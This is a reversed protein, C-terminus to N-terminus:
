QIAVTKSAEPRGKLPVEIRLLGDCYHAKAADVDVPHCFAASSVYDFDSRPALLQLHRSNMQLHIADRKAGPISIEVTMRGQAEDLCSCINANIKFKDTM